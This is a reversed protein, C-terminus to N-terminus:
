DISTNTIAEADLLAITVIDGCPALHAFRLDDLVYATACMSVIGQQSCQDHVQQM